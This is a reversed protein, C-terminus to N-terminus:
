NLQKISFLVPGLSMFLFFPLKLYSYNLYAYNTGKVLRYTRSKRIFRVMKLVIYAIAKSSDKGVICFNVFNEYLLYLSILFILAVVEDDVNLDINGLDLLLFINLQNLYDRLYM